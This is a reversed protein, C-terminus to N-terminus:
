SRDIRAEIKLNKSDNPRNQPTEERAADLAEWLRYQRNTVDNVNHRKAYSDLSTATAYNLVHWLADIADKSMNKFTLTYSDEPIEALEDEWVTEIRKRLSQRLLEVTRTAQTYVNDIYHRKGDAKKPTNAFSELDNALRKVFAPDSVVRSVRYAQLSLSVVKSSEYEGKTSVTNLYQESQNVVVFERSGPYGPKIPEIWCVKGVCNMTDGKKHELRALAQEILRVLELAADKKGAINDSLHANRWKMWPSDEGSECRLGPWAVPCNQCGDFNFGFGTYECLPCANNMMPVNGGNQKWAPWDEKMKDPNVALWRWLGLSLDLARKETLTEKMPMEKERHEWKPWNMGREKSEKGSVKEIDKGVPCHGSDGDAVLIARAQKMIGGALEFTGWASGAYIEKVRWVAGTPKYRVWDGVCIYEGTRNSAM